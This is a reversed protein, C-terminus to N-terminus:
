WSNSVHLMLDFHMKFIYTFLSYTLDSLTGSITTLSKMAASINIFLTLFGKMGRVIIWTRLRWKIYSAVEKRINKRDIFLIADKQKEKKRKVYSLISM